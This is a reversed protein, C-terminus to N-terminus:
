QWIALIVSNISMVLLFYSSNLWLFKWNRRSYFTVGVTTATTFGLWLVLGAVFGDAATSINLSRIVVALAVAQILGSVVVFGLARTAEDQPIKMIDIGTYKKWQKAFGAPSYWFAGVGCNIIWAVIIALFNLNNFEM